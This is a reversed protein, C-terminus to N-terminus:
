LGPASPCQRGVLVYLGQVLSHGRVGQKHTTSCPHGLGEMKRGQHKHMTSDDGILDGTVVPHQPRGRRGSREAQQRSLEAQVVPGMPRRFGAQWGEALAEADWPAQALFRSLGSLSCAQAVCRRLGSLTRTGQCPIFGLLVIVFYKYPPKSFLHRYTKLYQQLREITCLIPLPM